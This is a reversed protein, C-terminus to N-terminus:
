DDDDGISHNPVQYTWFTPQPSPSSARGFLQPVATRFPPPAVNGRISQRRPASPLLPKSRKVPSIDPGRPPSSASSAARMTVGLVTKLAEAAHPFEGQVIRETMSALSASVDVYNACLYNIEIERIRDYRSTFRSFVEAVINRTSLKSRIAEFALDQLDTIGYKEALRYMSKPSCPPVSQEEGLARELEAARQQEGESKLPLFYVKGTYLYFILARWTHYAVDKIVIQQCHGAYSHTSTSSPGETLARRKGRYTSSGAEDLDVDVIEEDELDSDSEYDYDDSYPPQDEPFPADLSVRQATAESFGGSLLKDFYDTRRLVSSIGLVHQPRDVRFTADDPFSRRSFAFFKVDLFTPTFLSEKLARSVHDLSPPPDSQRSSSSSTTVLAARMASDLARHAQHTSGPAGGGTAAQPMRSHNSGLQLSPGRAWMGSM